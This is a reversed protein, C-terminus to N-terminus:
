HEHWTEQREGLAVACYMRRRRKKKKPWVPAELWPRKQSPNKHSLTKNVIKRSQGQVMIEQTALIVPMFWQRGAVCYMRSSLSQAWPQPGTWIVTFLLGATSGTGGYSTTKLSCWGKSNDLPSFKTRKTCVNNTEENGLVQIKRQIPHKVKQYYM